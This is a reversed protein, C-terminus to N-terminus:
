GEQDKNGNDGEEEGDGDPYLDRTLEQYEEDTLGEPAGEPEEEDGDKKEPESDGKPAEEDAATKVKAKLKCFSCTGGGKCTCGEEAIKMLIQRASSLKVGASSAHDLVQQLTSDPSGTLAPEDLVKYLDPKVTSKADRKTLNIAAENSDVGKEGQPSAPTGENVPYAPMVGGGVLPAQGVKARTQSMQQMAQRAAANKEGKRTVMSRYAELMTAAASKGMNDPAVGGDTPMANAAGPATGGTLSPSTLIKNTTSEGTATPQTGGEPAAGGDTPLATAAGPASGETLGPSMPIDGEAAAKVIALAEAVKVAAPRDDDLGRHIDGGIIELQAALKLAGELDVPGSASATKTQGAARPKSPVGASASKEVTGEAERLAQAVLQEINM